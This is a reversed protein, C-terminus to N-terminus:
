RAARDSILRWVREAAAAGRTSGRFVLSAVLDRPAVRALWLMAATDAGPYTHVAEQLMARAIERDGRALAAAGVLSQRFGRLARLDPDDPARKWFLEEHFRLVDQHFRVSSPGTVLHGESLARGGEALEHKICGPVSVFNMPFRRCLEALWGFDCAVRYSHDNPGVLDMAQRTVVTPQMALLWGWRWGSFIEGRYHFAGDAYPTGELARAAWAGLPERTRYFWLYPDGEPPAADFARSGIRRATRPYWEGTEVRFHKVHNGDGFDEWFESSFAHEDPHADFFSTALALHHAPWADDSDLFAILAGSAAAMGMDRAGGVGRNEQVILQVRPDIGAVVDRTGDTSGDDVVVLEWDEFTQARVSEIARVITDRRNYTPMVVSVRPASM